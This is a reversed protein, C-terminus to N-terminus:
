GASGPTQGCGHWDGAWGRTTGVPSTSELIVANGPAPVPAIADAPQGIYALNPTRNGRFPTPVAIIFADALSASSRSVAAAQWLRRPRCASIAPVSSVLPRSRISWRDAQTHFRRRDAIERIASL